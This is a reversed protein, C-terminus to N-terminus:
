KKQIGSVNQVLNSSAAHTTEKKPRFVSSNVNKQTGKLSSQNINM